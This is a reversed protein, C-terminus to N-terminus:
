TDGLRRDLKYQEKRQSFFLSHLQGSMGIYNCPDIGRRRM